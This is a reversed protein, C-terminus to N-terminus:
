NELLEKIKLYTIKRDFKEEALKRNNKGFEERLKNDNILLEIKEAVEKVNGNECNFGIKYQEVIERYEESEQTSIVPLGAAAYDGLKNTISQAAGKSISNIAIDCGCLYGIMERYDLLGKFEVNVGKSYEKLEEELPGTGMILFKVKNGREQLIKMADIVTKLDYSHGITGVYVLRIYNDKFIKKNKRSHMDFTDLDTGLFVSLKNRCKKNVSEARKLYTDSVAVIDNAQRYIYDAMKKIPFFITNSIIPINFVMKFAEPWLDQVDIIFKINNKKAYQAMVKAVSLSPVACYIVDPKVKIKKLYKKLNIAMIYHSYFRKLTVNKKYGPEYITTFKYKLKELGEKQLDRQKKNGHYFSSTILEVNNKKNIIEAIYNFRNNGKENPTETFHAVIIINM